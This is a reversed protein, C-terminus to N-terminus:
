LFVAKFLFLLGESQGCRGYKCSKMATIKLPYDVTTFAEAVEHWHSRSHVDPPALSNLLVVVM